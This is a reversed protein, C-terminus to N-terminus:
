IPYERCERIVRLPFADSDRANNDVPLSGFAVHPREGFYARAVCFSLRGDYSMNGSTSYIKTPESTPSMDKGYQGLSM